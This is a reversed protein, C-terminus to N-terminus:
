KEGLGQTVLLITLHEGLKSVHAEHSTINRDVWGSGTEDHGRLDTGGLKDERTRQYFLLLNQSRHQISSGLDNAFHRPNYKIFNM